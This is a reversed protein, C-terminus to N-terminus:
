GRQVSLRQVRLQEGPRVMSLEESQIQDGIQLRLTRALREPVEVYVESEDPRLVTLIQDGDSTTEIDTITGETPGDTQAEEPPEQSGGAFARDPIGALILVTGILIAFRYVHPNSRRHAIQMTLLYRAINIGM